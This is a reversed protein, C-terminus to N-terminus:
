DVFVLVDELKYEIEKKDGEQKGVLFNEYIRLMGEFLKDITSFDTYTRSEENSSFQVFLISHNNFQKVEDQM